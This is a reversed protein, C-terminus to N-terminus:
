VLKIKTQIMILISILIILTGDAYQTLFLGGESTLCGFTFITHLKMYEEISENEDDTGLWVVDEIEYAKLTSGETYRQVFECKGSLKQTSKEFLCHDSSAITTTTSRDPDFYVPSVHKGCDLCPQCTFAMLRSGTDLILVQRQPPSGIYLHVHHSGKVAHLPIIANQPFARSVGGHGEVTKVGDHIVNFTANSGRLFDANCTLILHFTIVLCLYNLRRKQLFLHRIGIRM